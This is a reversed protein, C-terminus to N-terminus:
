LEPDLVPYSAIHAQALVRKKNKVLDVLHGLSHDVSDFGKDIMVFIHLSDVKSFRNEEKEAISPTLPSTFCVKIKGCIRM